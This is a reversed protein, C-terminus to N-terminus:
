IAWNSSRKCTVGSTTPEFVAQTTNEKNLGLDSRELCCVLGKGFWPNAGAKPKVPDALTRSRLAEVNFSAWLAVVLNSFALNM